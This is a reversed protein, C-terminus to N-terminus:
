WKANFLKEMVYSTVYELISAGVAALIFLTIPDEQYRTLLLHALVGGCGYIPCYPGLLFGRDLVIRKELYTVCLCEIMWGIISYCLFLLFLLCLTYM